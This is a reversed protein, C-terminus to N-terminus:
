EGLTGLWREFAATTGAPDEEQSVHGVGPLMILTSGAIDRHFEEADPVAPIVTDKAGWFILTPAKVRRLLASDDVNLTQRLTEGLAKRNGERLTIEYNLDVQEPTVKAPDGYTGELGKRVESKPLIHELLPSFVPSMAIKLGMPLPTSRPYGAPSLLVLRGVRNPYAVAFEWAMLGGSSNGVLIVKKVGLGDLLRKLFGVYYRMSYDNSPNPGTLAFGPRDFRIVRHKVKLRDAWGQWTYLSSATGHLMVIPMPDDRPGEDRLHVQMGDLAIFRSPPKAWRAKLSAVPRDPAWAPAVAVIVLLALALLVGGAIKLVMSM